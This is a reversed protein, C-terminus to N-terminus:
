AIIFYLLVIFPTFGVYFHVFVTIYRSPLPYFKSCIFLTSFLSYIFHSIHTTMTSAIVPVFVTLLFVFELFDPLPYAESM